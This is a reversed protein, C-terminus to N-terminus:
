LPKIRVNRFSVPDHHDQLGIFGKRLRHKLVPHTELDIDQVVQGNLTAKIKSGQCIIELSNWQDTPNAANVLPPQQLYLAGTMDDGVPANPDGHIQFEMGIFSQRAARPARIFVGSNGGECIKYELRLIFDGYRDRSMLADGGTEVFEIEGAENVKFTNHDEGWYWWGDLNKGNFLAIYGDKREDECLVSNDPTWPKLAAYNTLAKDLAAYNEPTNPVIYHLQQLDGGPPLSGVLIDLLGLGGAPVADVTRLDGHEPAAVLLGPAHQKFVKALHGAEPGDFWYLAKREVSLANAATVTAQARFKPDAHDGLVRVILAMRQEKTRSALDQVVAVSAPDLSSGDANFGALDIAVTNGGVEAIHALAPAAVDIDAGTVGLEPIQFANLTLDADGRVFRGDEIKYDDKAWHVRDTACGALFPTVALLSIAGFYGTTRIM